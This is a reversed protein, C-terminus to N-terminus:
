QLPEVAVDFDIGTVHPTAGDVVVHGPNAESGYWGLYVPIHTALDYLFVSVNYEGYPLNPLEYDLTFGAGLMSPKIKMDSPPAGQQPPFTNAAVSVFNSSTELYPPLAGLFTLTGSISGLDPDPGPDGAFDAPFNVHTVNADTANVTVPDDFAGCLTPIHTVPDYSFLAVDYTGYAIHAVNFVVTGDAQHTTYESTDGVTADEEVLFQLTNMTGTPTFGVFVIQNAPWAGSLAVRGSVTGWPGPGTFSCDDNFNSIEANQANFAIPDSQYIYVPDAGPQYYVSVKYTGFPIADFSFNIDRGTLTATTAAAIRGAVQHQTIAGTANDVLGIHLELAGAFPGGVTVKGAVSGTTAVNNTGGGSCAALALSAVLALICAVVIRM